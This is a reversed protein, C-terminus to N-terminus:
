RLGDAVRWNPVLNLLCGSCIECKSLLNDTSLPRAIDASDLLIRTHRGALEFHKWVKRSFVMTDEVAWLRSSLLSEKSAGTVSHTLRDARDSAPQEAVSKM